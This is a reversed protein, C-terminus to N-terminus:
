LCHLCKDFRGTLFLFLSFKYIDKDDYLNLFSGQYNKEKKIKAKVLNPLCTFKTTQILNARNM